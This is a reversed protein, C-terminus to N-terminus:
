RRAIWRTWLPSHVIDTNELRYEDPNSCICNKKVFILFIKPFQCCFLFLYIFLYIFIHVFIFFCIIFNFIYSQRRVRTDLTASARAGWRRRRRQTVRATTVVPPLVSPRRAATATGVPSVSAGAPACVSAAAPATSHVAAWGAACLVSRSVSGAPPSSPCCPCPPPPPQCHPRPRPWPWVCAVVPASYRLKNVNSLMFVIALALQCANYILSPLMCLCSSLLM